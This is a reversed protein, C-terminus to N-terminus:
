RTSVRPDNGHMIFVPVHALLSLKIFEPFYESYLSFARRYLAGLGDANARMAGSFAIATQPRANKDKELAWM